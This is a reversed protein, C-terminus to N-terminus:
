SLGLLTWLLLNRLCGAAPILYDIQKSLFIM